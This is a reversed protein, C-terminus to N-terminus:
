VEEKLIFKNLFIMDGKWIINYCIKHINCFFVHEKELVCRKNIYDYINMM